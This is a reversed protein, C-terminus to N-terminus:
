WFDTFFSLGTQLLRTYQYYAHSSETRGDGKVQGTGAYAGDSQYVVIHHAFAVQLALYEVVLFFYAQGFGFFGTFVQLGQVAMDTDFSIGFPQSGLIGLGDDSLVVQYQVATVVKGGTVEDYRM